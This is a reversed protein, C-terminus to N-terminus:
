FGKGNRDFHRRENAVNHRKEFAALQNVNLELKTYGRAQLRKPVPVDGRGPYQVNGGERDSVYVVVRDAPNTNPDLQARLTPLWLLKGDCTPSHTSDVLSSLQDVLVLGCKSCEIDVIVAM